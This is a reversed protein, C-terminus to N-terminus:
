GQFKGARRPLGCPESNATCCAATYMRGERGGRRVGGWRWWVCVRVHAQGGRCADVTCQQIGGRKHLAGGLRQQCGDGPQKARLRAGGEDGACSGHGVAAWRGAQSWCAPAPVQHCAGSSLLRRPCAGPQLHHNHRAALSRQGHVAAACGLQPAAQHRHAPVHRHPGSRQAIRRHRTQMLAHQAGQRHSGCRLSRCWPLAPTAARHWEARSCTRAPREVSQLLTSPSQAADAHGDGRDRHRRQQLSGSSAAASRWASACSTPEGCATGKWTLGEHPGPQVEAARAAVRATCAHPDQQRVAATSHQAPPALQARSFWASSNQATGATSCPPTSRMWAGPATGATSGEGGRAGATEFGAGAGKDGAGAAAATAASVLPPPLTVSGIPATTPAATPPTAASAAAAVSM